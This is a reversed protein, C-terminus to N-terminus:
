NYDYVSMKQRATNAANRSPLELWQPVVQHNKTGPKRGCKKKVKVDGDQIPMISAQKRKPAVIVKTAKKKRGKEKPLLTVDMTKKVQEVVERDATPVNLDDFFMMDFLTDDADDEVSNREFGCSSVEDERDLAFEKLSSNLLFRQSMPFDSSPFPLESSHIQNIEQGDSESGTVSGLLEFTNMHDQGQTQNPNKPNNTATQLTQTHNNNKVMSEIRSLVSEMLEIRHSMGDKFLIFEFNLLIVNVSSQLLHNKIVEVKRSLDEIKGCVETHHKVVKASIQDLYARVSILEFELSHLKTSASLQQSNPQPTASILSTTAQRLNNSYSHTPIIFPLASPNSAKSNTPQSHTTLSQQQNSSMGFRKSNMNFILVPNNLTHM